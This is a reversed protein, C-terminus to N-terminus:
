RGIPDSDVTQTKWCQTCEARYATLEAGRGPFRTETAPAGCEPCTLQENVVPWEFLNRLVM